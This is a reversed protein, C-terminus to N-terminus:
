SKKNAATPGDMLPNEDIGAVNSGPNEVDGPPAM